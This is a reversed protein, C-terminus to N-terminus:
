AKIENVSGNKQARNGDRERKAAGHATVHRPVQTHGVQNGRHPPAQCGGVDSASNGDPFAGVVRTRRRIERM